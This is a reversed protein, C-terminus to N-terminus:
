CGVDNFFNHIPYKQLFEHEISCLFQICKYMSLIPSVYGATVSEEEERERSDRQKLAMSM